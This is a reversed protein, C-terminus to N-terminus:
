TRWCRYSSTWIANGPATFICATADAANAPELLEAAQAAPGSLRELNLLDRVAQQPAILAQYDFPFAAAYNRWLAAAHEGGLAQQM